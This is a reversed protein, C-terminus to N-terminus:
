KIEIELAIPGDDKGTAEIKDTFLKHYKGILELSKVKDGRYMKHPGKAIKALEKLVEDASMVASEIRKELLARISAKVLNKAATVGLQKDSGKYGAKKAAQVGNANALYAEVFLRQKTTLPRESV